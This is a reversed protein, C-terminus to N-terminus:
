QRHLKWQRAVTKGINKEKQLMERKTANGKKYSGLIKRKKYSGLKRRRRCSGIEKKSSGQDGEGKGRGQFGKIPNEM